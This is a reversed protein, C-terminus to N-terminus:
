GGRGGGRPLHAVHVRPTYRGASIAAYPDARTVQKPAPGAKKRRVEPPELWVAEKGMARCVQTLLEALIGESLGHTEETDALLDLTVEIAIYKLDKCADDLMFSELTRVALAKDMDGVQTAYWSYLGDIPKASLTPNLSQREHTPTAPPEHVYPEAAQPWTVARKPESEYRAVEHAPNAARGYATDRAEQEDGVLWRRVDFYAWAQGSTHQAFYGSVDLIEGNRTMAYTSMQRVDCVFHTIDRARPYRPKDWVDRHLVDGSM